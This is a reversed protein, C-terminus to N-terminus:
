QSIHAASLNDSVNSHSRVALNNLYATYYFFCGVIHTVLVACTLLTLIRILNTGVWSEMKQILVGIKLLRLMKIIRLLRLMKVLKIM